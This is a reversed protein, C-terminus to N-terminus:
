PAKTAIFTGIEQPGGFTNAMVVGSYSTFVCGSADQTTQLQGELYYGNDAILPVLIVQLTDGTFRASLRGTGLPHLEDIFLETPAFMWGGGPSGANSLVLDFRGVVAPVGYGEDFVYDFVIPAHGVWVLKYFSASGSPSPIVFSTQNTVYALHRWNGGLSDAQLIEYVPLSTCTRNVWSLRGTRDLSTISVQGVGTAISAAGLLLGIFISKM